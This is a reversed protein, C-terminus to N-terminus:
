LWKSFLSLALENSKDCFMFRFHVSVAAIFRFLVPSQFLRDQPGLRRPRRLRILTRPRLRLLFHWTRPRLRALRWWGAPWAAASARRLRPCCAAAPLCAPLCAARCGRSWSGGALWSSLWQRLRGALWSSALQCAALLM